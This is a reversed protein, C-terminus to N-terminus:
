EYRLALMPDVNAAKRSPLWGAIMAVAVLLGAAFVFVVPDGAKV